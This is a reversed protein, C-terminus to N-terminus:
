LLRKHAYKVPHNKRFFNLFQKALFRRKDRRVTVRKNFESQSVPMVHGKFRSIM